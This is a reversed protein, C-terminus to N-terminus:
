WVTLNVHLSLPVTRLFFPRILLIRILSRALSSSTLLLAIRSTSGSTPTVSFFVWELESSSCSATFTRAWKTARLSAWLAPRAARALRTSESSILVLISREWMELGPSTSFAIRAFCCAGTAGARGAIGGGGISVLGAAAAGLTGAALGATVGGGLGAAIGGRSTTGVGVGRGVNVAGAGGTVGGGTAAEAGGTIGAAGRGGTGGGAVGGTASAAGGAAMAAGGGAAGEAGIAALGAADLAGAGCVGRGRMITGCVPGRGTYL